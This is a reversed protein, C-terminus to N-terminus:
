TSSPHGCHPRLANSFSTYIIGVGGDGRIVGMEWVGGRVTIEKPTHTPPPISLPPTSNVDSYKLGWPGWPGMHTMVISVIFNDWLEHKFCFLRGQYQGSIIAGISAANCWVIGWSAGKVHGRKGAVRARIGAGGSRTVRPLDRNWGQGCQGRQGGAVETSVGPLRLTQAPWWQMVAQINAM